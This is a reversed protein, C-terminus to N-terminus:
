GEHEMNQDNRELIEWGLQVFIAKQEVWTMKCYSLRVKIKLIRGNNLKILYIMPLLEYISCGRQKSSM